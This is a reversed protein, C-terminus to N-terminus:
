REGVIMPRLQAVPLRPVDTLDLPIILTDDGPSDAYHGAPIRLEAVSVDAPIEIATICTQRIGPQLGGCVAPADPFEGFSRGDETRVIMRGPIMPSTHTLMEVDLVLWIRNSAYEYGHALVNEAMAAAHVTIDMTRLEALEGITGAHEFPEKLVEASTPFNRDIASGIALGALIIVAAPLVRAFKM